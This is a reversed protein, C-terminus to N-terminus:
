PRVDFKNGETVGKWNDTRFPSAPYGEVNFLNIDLADSWGYRVAAPIVGTPAYVIVQNDIVEARAYQFKQDAGALEFGRLYGYKDKAILGKGINKFQIIVKDTLIESSAYLPSFGFIPQQYVMNLVQAALRQGVDKKNRPHIDNDNGIDTIVAMGTNPLALTQTQAERLEAWNSGENATKNKGYSTLQVFYFPFDEGWKKRWDQIMLPFTQRYEFARGANTEGQYWLVGKFAMPHLPHIMANYITTGINNQLSAFKYPVSYSAMAHWKDDALSIRDGIGELYFDKEDGNFGMGYWDPNRISGFTIMVQNRYMQWINPQIDIKLKGSTSGKYILNGNVFITIESDNEGLSLTTTEKIWDEPIDLVRAAYAKGRFAWFGQWDLSGPMGYTPWKSFDYDAKLYAEEQAATVTGTTSSLTHNKLKAEQMADGEAWTHPITQAYGSLAPSAAMSEKSIWGEVQSGGWSSNILGVPVDLSDQLMQAFYYGVGTFQGATKPSCAVWNGEKLDQEPQLALANSVKFQRINPYKAKRIEAAHNECNSVTWEMNSQGSCLWVEGLMVDKFNQTQTKSKVQMEYPGGAEMADFTVLWYGNKDSVAMKEQGALRVTITENAVAWGWVPIPKQRQLVAHDDFIRAVRLQAKAFFPNSIMLLFLFRVM